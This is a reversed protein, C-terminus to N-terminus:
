RILLLKRASDFRGAAKLRVIYVGSPLSLGDDSQGNWHARYVSPSLQANILTRVPQGLVNYITLETTETYPVVFEITAEQNFPNPYINGLKFSSPPSAPTGSASLGVDHATVGDNSVVELTYTYTVGGLLGRDVYRYRKGTAANGRGYLEGSTAYSAVVQAVGGSDDSRWLRFGLVDYEAEAIWNIVLASFTTDQEVYMRSILVPLAIDPVGIPCDFCSVPDGGCDVDEGSLLVLNIQNASNAGPRFSGSIIVHRDTEDIAHSISDWTMSGSFWFDLSDLPEDLEPQLLSDVSSWLIMGNPFIDTSELGGEVGLTLGRLASEGSSSLAFYMLPVNEIGPFVETNLVGGHITVSSGSPFYVDRVFASAEENLLIDRYVVSVKYVGRAVLSGANDVSDIGEGPALFAPHILVTKLEGSDADSLYLVHPSLVDVEPGGTQELILKLSGPSAHEPQTYVIETGAFAFSDGQAPSHIQPIETAGDYSVLRGTSVAEDNGYHDQYGVRLLYLSSHVFSTGGEVSTVPAGSLHLAQSNLFLGTVGGSALNGLHIIHPSGPYTPVGTFEIYVSGMLPREPLEFQVWFSNNDVQGTIPAIVRPPVTTLDEPWIYGSNMVSVAPNGYQDGYTLTVNYIAQSVLADELGNSNHLVNPGGTGINTGDLILYHEGSGNHEPTLTLVHPSFVDNVTSSTDVEFILQVSDAMEPLRYIVRIDPAPSESGVRPETLTPASTQLDVTLNDVYATDSQEGLGGSVRYYMRLFLRSLHNLSAPGTTSDVGGSQTLNLSNVQVTKAEGQLTDSLFLRHVILGGFEPVERLELILSNARADMPQDYQVLFSRGVTSNSDPSHFVPRNASPRDLHLWPKHRIDVPNLVPPIEDVALFSVVEASYQLGGLDDTGFVVANMQMSRLNLGLPDPVRALFTVVQPNQSDDVTFGMSDIEMSEIAEPFGAPEDESYFIGSLEFRPRGDLGVGNIQWGEPVSVTLIVHVLDGPAVSTDLVTASGSLGFGNIVFQAQSTGALVTMFLGAILCGIRIKMSKPIM